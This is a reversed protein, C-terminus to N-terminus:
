IIILAFLLVLLSLFVHLRIIIRFTPSVPVVVLTMMISVQRVLILSFIIYLGILLLMGGKFLHYITTTSVLTTILDDINM